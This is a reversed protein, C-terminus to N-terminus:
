NVTENKLNKKTLIVTEIKVILKYLIPKVHPMSKVTIINNDFNMTEHKLYSIIKPEQFGLACGDM